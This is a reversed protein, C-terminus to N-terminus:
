YRLVCGFARVAQEPADYTPVGATRFRTRGLAASADGVWSTLLTARSQAGLAAIVAAAAADPSTM